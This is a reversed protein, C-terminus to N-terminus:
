EPSCGYGPAAKGGIMIARPILGDGDGRVIRDYLHVAHLLNLLQRKYEHIRKVQVDFLMKAEVDIGTREKVLRALALKNEARVHRWKNQFSEDEALPALQSLQELDTVWGDGIQTSILSALKPDHATEGDVPDGRQM